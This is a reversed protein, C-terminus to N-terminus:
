RVPIVLDYRGAHPFDLILVAQPCHYDIFGQLWEAGDM